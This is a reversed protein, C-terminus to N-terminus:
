GVSDFDVPSLDHQDSSLSLRSAATTTLKQQLVNNNTNKTHRFGDLETTDATTRQTSSIPRCYVPKWTFKLSNLRCLDRRHNKLGGFDATLM